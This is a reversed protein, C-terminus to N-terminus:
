CAPGTPDLYPAFVVTATGSVPPRPAGMTKTWTATVTINGGPIGYVDAEGSVANGSGLIVALGVTCHWTGFCPETTCDCGATFEVSAFFTVHFLTPNENNCRYGLCTLTVIAECPGSSSSSDSGSTDSSGSGSFSDSVQSGSDSSGGSSSSDSSGGSSNDSSGGSSGSSGSLSSSDSSHTHNPFGDEDHRKDDKDELKSDPLVSRLGYVVVESQIRSEFPTHRAERHLPEFM